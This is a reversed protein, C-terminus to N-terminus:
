EAEIDGPDDPKDVIEWVGGFNAELDSKIAQAGTDAVIGVSGRFIKVTEVDADIANVIKSHQTPREISPNFWDAM